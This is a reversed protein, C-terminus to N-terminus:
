CKGCEQLEAVAELRRQHRGPWDKRKEGCGKGSVNQAKHWCMESAWWLVSKSTPEVWCSALHSRPIPIFSKWTDLVEDMFHPAWLWAKWIQGKWVSPPAQVRLFSQCTYVTLLCCLAADGRRKDDGMLQQHEKGCSSYCHVYSRLLRYFVSQAGLMLQSSQRSKFFLPNWM